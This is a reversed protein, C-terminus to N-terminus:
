YVNGLFHTLLSFLLYTFIVIPSVSSRSYLGEMAASATNVKNLEVVPIQVWPAGRFKNEVGQTSERKFFILHLGGFDLRDFPYFPQLTLTHSFAWKQLGRKLVNM